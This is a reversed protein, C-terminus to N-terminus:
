VHSIKLLLRDVESTVFNYIIERASVGRKKKEIQCSIRLFHLSSKNFIINAVIHIVSVDYLLKSRRRKGGLEGKGCGM